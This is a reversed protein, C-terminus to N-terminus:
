TPLVLPRLCSLVPKLVASNFANDKSSNNTKNFLCKLPSPAAASEPYVDLISANVIAVPFKFSFMPPANNSENEFSAPPPSISLAVDLISVKPFVSAPTMLNIVPTLLRLLAKLLTSIFNPMTGTVLFVVGNFAKACLGPSRAFISALLAFNALALLSSSAMRVALFLSVAASAAALASAALNSSCFFFNSRSRMPM